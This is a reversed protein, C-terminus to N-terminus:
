AEVEITHKYYSGTVVSNSKITEKIISESIAIGGQYTSGPTAILTESNSCVTFTKKTIPTQSKRLAIFEGDVTRVTSGNIEYSVSVEDDPLSADQPDDGSSDSGTRSGEITFTWSNNGEDSGRVKTCTLTGVVPLSFEDGLAIGPNPSDGSYSVEKTGSYVTVGDSNNEIDFSYKTASSQQEPNAISQNDSAEYVM